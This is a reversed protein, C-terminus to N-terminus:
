YEGLHAALYAICSSAVHGRNKEKLQPSSQGAVTGYLQFQQFLSTDAPSGSTSLDTL